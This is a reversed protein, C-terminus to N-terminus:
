ALGGRPDVYDKDGPSGTVKKDKSKDIETVKQKVHGSTVFFWYVLIIIILVLNKNGM